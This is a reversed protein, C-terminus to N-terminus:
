RLCLSESPDNQVFVLDVQVVGLDFRLQTAASECNSVKNLCKLKGGGSYATYTKKSIVFPSFIFSSHKTGVIIFHYISLFTSKINPIMFAKTDHMPTIIFTKFVFTQIM